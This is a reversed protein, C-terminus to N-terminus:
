TELDLAVTSSIRSGSTYFPCTQIPNSRCCKCHLYPGTSHAPNVNVQPFDGTGAESEEDDV